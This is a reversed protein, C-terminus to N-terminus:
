RVEQGQLTFTKDGRLIFIEGNRVVKSSQANTSMASINEVGETQSIPLINSFEKWVDATKYANISGSPVYLKCVSKDVELISGGFVTANIEQPTIAYNYIAILSRCYAFAYDGISTVGNPITVSTLSSCDSFARWGISTVCNPITVSTLGSCYWFTGDGISTVSNPLEISTLGSCGHFARNGISTVSNPIVYAGHKGGPYQVLTTKGKNFLVGEISSYNTNDAAVDFSILGTCDEFAYDAISTVSNPIMVSTLSSCNSFAYGGINTVSNPITISTLSSCDSFACLGISTVSNPITVSPLGTCRNFAYDGISTVSNPITVSTLGTCRNFTWNGIRTISNPIVLDTVLTENLYLNLPYNAAAGGFSIACWAAIDTIHISTFSSCNSFAGGGISTVSNPITISTLSSCNSFAYGGISTVSNPITVSTLDTCRNFADGGIFITGEKITYSSLTKDVAEVLYTDAYRCNNIVPLSSCNSFALDGINTVSNPITISTLSSCNSFAYDGIFITGEKITYSSLTKDVAEVLYTDAYRCNNIVPLSSCGSFAFLGIATVSNPITVSTLSSCESFAAYGVSTVSYTVSNYTVSSPINATTLGSYKNKDSTVEATKNTADLNYYLDGILVSAFLNGVSIILMLFLSFLKTKMHSNKM